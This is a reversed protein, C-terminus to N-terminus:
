DSIKLDIIKLQAERRGNFENVELYYVLDISDGIKLEKYEKAAGFALAWVPQVRRGNIEPASLRIKIHQGDLGMTVIDGIKLGHSVFRPQPNGQGFPSLRNIQDALELNIDAPDLEHEIRLTPILEKEGLKKAALELMKKKFEALNEKGSLSFGCAMPHGGYKDLFGACSEVAAVLNFEEISRGSGKFCEEGEEVRAIILTPRYYKEAIRGAVLGVVGENWFDGDEAVGIIVLPINDGDIQKEVAAVMEETIKQRLTNRENLEKALQEAEEKDTTTLLAFASNAHALRSAANLRPGIQWGVNWAELPRGCNIKAAKMLENLGERKCQNLIKLGERVLIRNEGLLQVLDAVTGVAVLDLCKDSILKKQKEPLEARSLLANILKFAVGVGALFPWPYNDDSDAPDIYLCDPMDKKEPLVHHDTVIVDIGLSQAYSIEEKNRIGNDVTIILKFGRESIQKIAAMNLGYGESVRDPLYVDVLGHLINLTELLIVSSTVGDADYDGYVVIKNGKKIHDIILDVAAAMNKFLFPDHFEPSENLFDNINIKETLGRNFLLQLIVPNVDPYTSRFESSIKPLIKWKKM